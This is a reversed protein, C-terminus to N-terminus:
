CGLYHLWSLAALMQMCHVAREKGILLADALANLVLPLVDILDALTKRFHRCRLVLGEYPLPKLHCLFGVLIAAISEACRLFLAFIQCSTQV